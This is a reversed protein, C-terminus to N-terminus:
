ITSANDASAERGDHPHLAQAGDTSRQMQELGLDIDAGEAALLLAPDVDALVASGDPALPLRFTHPGILMIIHGQPAPSLKIQLSWRPDTTHQVLVQIDYGAEIHEDILVHEGQGVIQRTVPQSAIAAVATHIFAYNIQMLPVVPLVSAPPLPLTPTHAAPIATYASVNSTWFLVASQELMSDAATTLLYKVGQFKEADTLRANITIRCRGKYTILFGDIHTLHESENYECGKVEQLAVMISHPVNM